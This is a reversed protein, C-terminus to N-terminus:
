NSSACGSRDIWKMIRDYLQQHTDNYHEKMRRFFTTENEGEHGWRSVKGELCDHWPSHESVIIQQTIGSFQYATIDIVIGKVNLWLHRENPDDPRRGSIQELGCIGNDHLYAGLLVCAHHCCESPFRGLNSEDGRTNALLGDHFVSVLRRLRVINADNM